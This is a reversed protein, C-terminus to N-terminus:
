QLLHICDVGELLWKLIIRGDMAPDETDDRDKLNRWWFQTHMEEGM